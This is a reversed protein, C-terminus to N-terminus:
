DCVVIDVAFAVEGCEVDVDEEYVEGFCVHVDASDLFRIEDAEDDVMDRYMVGIGVVWFACRVPFLSHINQM